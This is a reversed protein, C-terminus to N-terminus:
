RVKPTTTPLYLAYATTSAYATPTIPLNLETERELVECYVFSGNGWSKEPDLKYSLIRFRDGKAPAQPVEDSYASASASIFDSNRNKWNAHDDFVETEKCSSFAALVVALVIPFIASLRKM